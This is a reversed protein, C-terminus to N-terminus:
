IKPSIIRLNGYLGFERDLITSEVRKNDSFSLLGTYTCIAKLDTQLNNLFFNRPLHSPATDCTLEHYYDFFPIKFSTPHSRYRMLIVKQFKSDCNKLVNISEPINKVEKTKGLSEISKSQNVFDLITSIKSFTPM